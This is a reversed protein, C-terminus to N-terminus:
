QLFDATLASRWNGRGSLIAERLGARTIRGHEDFWAAMEESMWKRATTENVSWLKRPDVKGEYKRKLMVGNTAAEAAWYQEAAMEEFRWGLLEDFGRGEHGDRRAEAMFDRRRIFEVDLDYVEAEAEVPDYGQEILELMRDIKAQDEALKAAEAAAAKEAAERERADVREMEDLLKEIRDEDGAEIAASLETEIVELTRKPKRKPKEPAPAKAEPEATGLIAALEADVREYYAVAHRHEDEADLWQGIRHLRLREAGRAEMAHAIAGPTRLYGDTGLKVAEYDDLWDHVYDPVDYDAGDRLPVAVCKCHDHGTAELATRHPHLASYKTRYLGPAAEDHMTLVRTALMRCFGCANVAAHRVWRVGEREANDLVTRRSQNFVARTSSGRLALAPDGQLLAWRGSAGLQERDPLPAAQPIFNAPAYEIGTNVQRFESTGATQEAYWQATLEGSAGLFPDVLEPYADTILALGERRTAEALRPVLQDVADGVRGALEALVGQFEPVATTM